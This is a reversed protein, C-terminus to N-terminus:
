APAGVRPYLSPAGYFPPCQPLHPLVRLASHAARLAPLLGNIFAWKSPYLSAMQREVREETVDLGSLSIAGESIVLLKVSPSRTRIDATARKVNRTLSLDCQLFERTM